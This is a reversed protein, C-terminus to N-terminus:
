CHRTEREGFGLPAAGGAAADLRVNHPPRISYARGVPPPLPRVGAGLQTDYAERTTPLKDLPVVSM